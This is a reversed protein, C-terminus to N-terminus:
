MFFFIQTNFLINIIPHFWSNSPNFFTSPCRLKILRLTFVPYTKTLCQLWVSVFSSWVQQNVYQLKFFDCGVMVAAIPETQRWIRAYALYRHSSELVLHPYFNTQLALNKGFKSWIHLCHLIINNWSVSTRNLSYKIFLAIVICGRGIAKIRAASAGSIEEKDIQRTRGTMITFHRGSNIVVTGKHNITLTMKMFAPLPHRRRKIPSCQAITGYGLWYEHEHRQYFKHCQGTPTCDNCTRGPSLCVYM